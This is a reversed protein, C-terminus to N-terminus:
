VEKEKKVKTAKLHEAHKKRALELRQEIMERERDDTKAGQHSKKVFSYLVYVCPELTAIYVARYTLNQDDTERLEDIPGTFTKAISPRRGDQVQFLAFGFIDKIEDPFEGYERRAAESVFELPKVSRNYWKRYVYVVDQIPDYRGTGVPRQFSGPSYAVSDM